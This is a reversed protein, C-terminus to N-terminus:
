EMEELIEQIEEESLGMDQLEDFYKKLVEIDETPVEEYYYVHKIKSKKCHILYKVVAGYDDGKSTILYWKM